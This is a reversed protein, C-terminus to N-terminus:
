NVQPKQTKPVVLRLKCKHHVGLRPGTDRLLIEHKALYSAPYLTNQALHLCVSVFDQCLAPKLALKLSLVPTLGM